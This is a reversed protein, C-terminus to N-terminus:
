TTESRQAFAGLFELYGVQELGEVSELCEHLYWYNLSTREMVRKIADEISDHSEERSDRQGCFKCKFNLNVIM